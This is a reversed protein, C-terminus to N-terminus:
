FPELDYPYEVIYKSDLIIFNANNKGILLGQDKVATMFQGVTSRNPQPLELTITMKGEDYEVNPYLFANNEKSFSIGEPSVIFTFKM